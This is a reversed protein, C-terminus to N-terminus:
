NKEVCKKGDSYRESGDDFYCSMHFYKIANRRLKIFKKDPEFENNILKHFNVSEDVLYGKNLSLTLRPVQYFCYM